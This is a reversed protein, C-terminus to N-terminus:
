DAIHELTTFAYMGFPMLLAVKVQGRGEEGEGVRGSRSQMSQYLSISKIETEKM